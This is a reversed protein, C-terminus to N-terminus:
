NTHACPMFMLWRDNHFIRDIKGKTGTSVFKFEECSLIQRALSFNILLYGAQLSVFFKLYSPDVRLLIGDLVNITLDEFM